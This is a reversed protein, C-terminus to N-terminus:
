FDQRYPDGLLHPQRELQYSLRTLRRAVVGIRDCCAKVEDIMEALEQQETGEASRAAIENSLRAVSELTSRAIALPTNLHHALEQSLAALEPSIATGVEQPSAALGKRQQAIPQTPPQLPASAVPVAESTAGVPSASAAEVKSSTNM